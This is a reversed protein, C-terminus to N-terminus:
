SLKTQSDIVVTQLSQFYESKIQGGCSTTELEPIISKLIAYYNQSKFTEAAFIAKIGVKRICYAIESAQYAPNLAVSVLGARAAAMMTLYWETTNPSWIGICDGKQLGLRRYGAAM